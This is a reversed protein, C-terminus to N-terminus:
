TMAVCKMSTTLPVDLNAVYQYFIISRLNSTYHRDLGYQIGNLLRCLTFLNIVSILEMAAAKTNTSYRGGGQRIITVHM